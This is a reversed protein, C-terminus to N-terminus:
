SDRDAVSAVADWVADPRRPRSFYYGQAINCGVAALDRVQGLREVGEAVPLVGLAHSLEVVGRVISQARASAQGLGDVFGKDIKIVDITFRSLYELSSYGTGFDDVAISVGLTKLGLLARLSSSADHMLVRETIEICLDAPDSRMEAVARAVADVLEPRALQAASINVCIKFDTATAALERWLRAQRCAEQRIWDGLAVILQTDEAVPIFDAPGLTGRAPNDWRVLAEVGVVRGDSV